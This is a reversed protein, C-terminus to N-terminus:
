SAQHCPMQVFLRQVAHMSAGSRLDHSESSRRDLMGEGGQFIADEAMWAEQQATESAGLGVDAERDHGAVEFAHDVDESALGDGGPQLRGSM